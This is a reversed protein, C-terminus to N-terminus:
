EDFMSVAVREISNDLFVYNQDQKASATDRSRGMALLKTAMSTTIMAANDNDAEGVTNLLFDVAGSTLPEDDAFL